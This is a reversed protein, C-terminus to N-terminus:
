RGMGSFIATQPASTRLGVLELAVKLGAIGFRTTVAANPALLRFQAARAADHDGAAFLDRVEACAHPAVDALALIGGAAGLCLAPYLFNASGALVAFGPESEHVMEAFKVANGSITATGSREKAALALNQVLKKLKSSDDERVRFDKELLDSFEGLDIAQAEAAAPAGKAKETDAM